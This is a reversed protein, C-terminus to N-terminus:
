FQRLFERFDLIGCYDEGVGTRIDGTATEIFAVRLTDKKQVILVKGDITTEPEGKESVKHLDAPSFFIVVKPQLEKIKERVIQLLIQKEEQNSFHLQITVFHLQRYGPRM